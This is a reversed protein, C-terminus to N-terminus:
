ETVTKPHSYSGLKVQPLEKKIIELFSVIGMGVGDGAINQWLYEPDINLNRLQIMDVPNQQVFTLLAELEQERDTFGPYVLLNLSVLVGQEKAYNISRSLDSWTYNRPRHYRLYNEEWCSFITVRMSDLGADCIKKIGQTYGANTNMNITGLGTKNRIIRIAQSLTAANLSPEGECGQGFCIIAERAKALHEWGLQAIEEVDPRFNLRNQPSAFPGHKESICALCDANCLPMSPIGGEWRQYFINQATYCGYELSCKALQQLVRNGPYKKQMRQIKAPLDESNYNKPHWKRHEDSQIAAVYIKDQHWAVAAYGYLPLQVDKQQRVAAPLLTRTFGQPLLAAVASISSGGPYELLKLQNEEDLGVPLYGPLSLLSAGPPLPMMEAREPEVWQSGSQGLMTLTPCDLLNGEQDAYLTYYM